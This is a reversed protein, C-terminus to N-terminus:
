AWIDYEAKRRASNEEIQAIVRDVDRNYLPNAKIDRVADSGVFSYGQSRQVFVEDPFLRKVTGDYVPDKFYTLSVDPTIAHEIAEGAPVRGGPYTYNGYGRSNM